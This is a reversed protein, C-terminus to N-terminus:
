GNMALIETEGAVLFLDESLPYPDRWLTKGSISKAMTLQDPGRSADVLTVVGHHELKGHGPCFSALVKNSNPVPKADLFVRSGHMNGYYVQQNTGDPNM